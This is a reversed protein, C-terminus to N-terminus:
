SHALRELTVMGKTSGIDVAYGSQHESYGAPLAYDAGNEVYLTQQLKPSRFASNIKFHNIKDKKAAKFMILLNSKCAFISTTPYKSFGNTIM